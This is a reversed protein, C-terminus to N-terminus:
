CRGEVDEEEVVELLWGLREELGVAEVEDLGVVVVVWSLMLEKMDSGFGNKGTVSACLIM